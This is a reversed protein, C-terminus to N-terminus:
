KNPLEANVAREAIESISRAVDEPHMEGVKRALRHLAGAISVFEGHMRFAEAALDALHDAATIAFAKSITDGRQARVDSAAKEARRVDM